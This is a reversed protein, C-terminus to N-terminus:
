ERFDVCARNTLVSRVFRGASKHEPHNIYHALAAEDEFLSNLIVDRNSSPMENIHVSLEVIGDIKGNLRELDEKVKLANRRNDQETFGEAYNWMVIHRVM